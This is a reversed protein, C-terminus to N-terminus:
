AATCLKKPKKKPAGKASVPPIYGGIDKMTSIPVERIVCGAKDSYGRFVVLMSGGTNKRNEKFGMAVDPELFAIRGGIILLVENAYDRALLYWKTDISQPILMVTTVGRSQERIAAYIWPTINSYPPNLFAKTGPSGWSCTLADKEVGIYNAFLANQKNCAVDVEFELSLVTQIAQVLWKPTRWLDKLSKDRKLSVSTKNNVM